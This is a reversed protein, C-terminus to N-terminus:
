SEREADSGACSSDCGSRRGRGGSRHHGRLVIQRRTRFRVHGGLGGDGILVIEGTGTDLLHPSVTTAVTSTVPTATTLPAARAAM